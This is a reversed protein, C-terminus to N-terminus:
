LGGGGSELERGIAWVDVAQASKGHQHHYQAVCLETIKGAAIDADIHEESNRAVHDRQRDEAILCVICECESMKVALPQAPQRWREIQHQKRGDDKAENVAKRLIGIHHNFVAQQHRNEIGIDVECFLGSIEVDADFFLRQEM